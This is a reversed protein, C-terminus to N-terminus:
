ACVEVTMQGLNKVKGVSFLPEFSDSSLALHNLPYPSSDLTIVLTQNRSGKITSASFWSGPQGKVEVSM